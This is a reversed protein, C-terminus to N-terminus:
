FSLFAYGNALMTIRATLSSRSVTRLSAQTGLMRRPHLDINWEATGMWTLPFARGRDVGQVLHFAHSQLSIDFNHSVRGQTRTHMPVPALFASATSVVTALALFKM